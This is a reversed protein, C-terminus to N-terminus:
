SRLPAFSSLGTRKINAAKARSAIAVTDVRGGHVAGNVSGGRCASARHPKRCSPIRAIRNMQLAVNQKMKLGSRRDQRGRRWHFARGGAAIVCGLGVGAVVFKLIISVTVPVVAQNPAFVEVVDPDHPWSQDMALPQASTGPM